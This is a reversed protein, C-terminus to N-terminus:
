EVVTIKGKMNPHPSCHYPNASAENFTFSYSEGQALLPGAFVDPKVEDPAPADHATGGDAHELMVNHKVADLNTWTVTTGKKIRINPLHYAFDKINMRVASQNTLDVVLGEDVTPNEDHGGEQHGTAGKSAAALQPEDKQEKMTLGIGGVVALVALVLAAALVNSSIKLPIKHKM